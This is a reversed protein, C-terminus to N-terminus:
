LHAESSPHRVQWALMELRNGVAALLQGEMSAVAM